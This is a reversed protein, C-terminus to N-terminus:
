DPCCEATAAPRAATHDLVAAPCAFVGPPTGPSFPEQRPEAPQQPAFHVRRAAAAGPPPFDQFRVAAPPSGRVRPLAPPATPDTCPKLRLTSVKDEKDGIRLTFHHLSRRIVPGDYLPQLPLVHGDRRVFVTPARALADPLQPPPTTDLPLTNPLM